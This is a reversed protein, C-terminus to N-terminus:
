LVQNRHGETLVTAAHRARAIHHDDHEAVFFMWDVVNMQQQLRPHISRHQVTANEIGELRRVLELRGARLRQLIGMISASNHRALETARNTVDGPSLIEALRCFETLRTQDLEGLDVLHGLHEQASWAGTPRKSLVGAPVSRVLEEARAPTGRLRELVNPFLDVGLGFTWSRSIWSAPEFM